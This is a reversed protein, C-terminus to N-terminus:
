ILTYNLNINYIIMNINNICKFSIENHSIPFNNLAKGITECIASNM